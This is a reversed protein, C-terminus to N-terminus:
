CLELVTYIERVYPKDNVSRGDIEVWAHAKFPTQQVGIVLQAPFGRKKLMDTAAASRQLCLVEKWYWICARDVASCVREVVEPSAVHTGVPCCSVRKHFTAFDGRALRIDLRVLNWYAKLFLLSM